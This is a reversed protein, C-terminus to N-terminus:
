YSKYYDLIARVHPPILPETTGSFVMSGGQLSKSPIYHENEYYEVLQICALKVDNPAGGAGGATGATYTIKVAQPGIPWNVFSHTGNPIRVITDSTHYYDAGYDLVLHITSDNLTRNIEEVMQISTIPYYKPFLVDTDYDVDFWEEIPTDPDEPYDSGTYTKILNSAAAILFTLKQDSDTKTKGMYSKYEALTIIDAM